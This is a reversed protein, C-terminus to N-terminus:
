PLRAARLGAFRGELDVQWPAQWRASGAADISGSPTRLTLAAIRLREGQLSAAGALSLDRRNADTLSFELREADLPQAIIEAVQGGAMWGLGFPKGAREVPQAVIDAIPDRLRQQKVAALFRFIQAM